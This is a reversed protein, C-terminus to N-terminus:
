AALRSRLGGKVHRAFIEFLRARWRGSRATAWRAQRRDTTIPTVFSTARPSSPRGRGGCRTWPSRGSRWSIRAAPWSGGAARRPHHRAPHRQRPPPHPDDGHEDVIWVNTAAGETVMGDARRDAQGRYAGSERAAQKALCTPCCAITKIDCRAWRKDPQTIRGRGPRTPRSLRHEQYDCWRRRDAQGPFAHDRRAVGRTVQMYILGDRVRNRRM